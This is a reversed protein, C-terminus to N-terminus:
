GISSYTSPTDGSLESRPLSLIFHFRTGQEEGSDVRLVGGLAAVLRHCVALGLGSSSFVRQQAPGTPRFADFLHPVVQLPINRGGDNVAFELRDGELCRASVIVVGRDAYQVANVTLNLMIRGIYAPRGVRTDNEPTLLEVAVGKEDAVPQVIDVVSQLMASVSFASCSDADIRDGGRVFDILDCAVQNLAFISSHIMRLQQQQVVNVPGSRGSRLMELLFLIAALPSRLDHAVEVMANLDAAHAHSATAQRLEFLSELQSIASVLRVLEWPSRLPSADGGRTLRERLATFFPRADTSTTTSSLHPTGSNMCVLVADRLERVLSDATAGESRFSAHELSARIAHDLERAM